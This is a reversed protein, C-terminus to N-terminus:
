PPVVAVDYGDARYTDEIRDLVMTREADSMPQQEVTSELIWPTLERTFIRIRRVSPMEFGVVAVRCRGKEAYEIHKGDGVLKVVSGDPYEYTM